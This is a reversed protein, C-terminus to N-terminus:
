GPGTPAFVQVMVVVVVVVVLALINNTFTNLKTALIEQISGTNM